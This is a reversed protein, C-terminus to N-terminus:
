FNEMLSYIPSIISVAVIGVGLGLLVMLVPELISSLDNMTQTVKSEYFDAIEELINDLTGTEEGVMVMQTTLPPFLKKNDELINALKIGKKIKNAADLMVKKYHVNGLVDGTISLAEVISIGSRLLTGMTRSFRALNIQKIIPGLIFLRLNFTHVKEKGGKTRSYFVFLITSIIGVIAVYLGYSQIFDSFAILIKTTLPLEVQFDKFIDTLKPLVMTIMMVVVTLMTLLVVSPYMMASRVKVILDRDKKMQVALEKLVQELNGSVEGVRIMSVYFPPFIKPYSGLSSALETGKEVSQKVDGITKKFKKNTTQKDLIDLARIISLGSKIMVQLNQTFLIKDITPVGGFIVAGGKQTKKKGDSDSKAQTLLLGQDRLIKALSSKNSANLAGSKMQGEQDRATYTFKPM